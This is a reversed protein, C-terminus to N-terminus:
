YGELGMCSNAYSGDYLALWAEYDAIDLIYEDIESQIKPIVVESDPLNSSNNFFQCSWQGDVLKKIETRLDEAHGGEHRLCTQNLFNTSDDCGIIKTDLCVLEGDSSRNVCLDGKDPFCSCKTRADLVTTGGKYLGSSGKEGVSFRTNLEDQIESFTKNSFNTKADKYFQLVKKANELEKKVLIIEDCPVRKADFGSRNEKSGNFTCPSATDIGEWGWVGSFSYTSQPETSEPNRYSRHDKITVKFSTKRHPGLDNVCARPICSTLKGSFTNGSLVGEFYHDRKVDSDNNRCKNDEDVFRAVVKQGTQELDYRKGNSNDVWRGTLDIESDAESGSVPNEAEAVNSELCAINVVNVEQAYSSFSMGFLGTVIVFVVSQYLKQM